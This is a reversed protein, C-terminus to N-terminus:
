LIIERSTLSDKFKLSENCFYWDGGEHENLADCQRSIHEKIYQEIGADFDNYSGRTRSEEVYSQLEEIADKFSGKSFTSFTSFTSNAYYFGNRFGQNPFSEPWIAWAAVLLSIIILIWEFNTLENMNVELIIM